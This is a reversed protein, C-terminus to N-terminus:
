RRPAAIAESEILERAIERVTDVIVQTRREIELNVRDGERKDGFTTVRLTEPILHVSFTGADRDVDVVTLSCGDLAVFGKPFVYRLLERPARFTVVHNGPPRDVTAIEATGDVHGSVEHGGIEDGARASREVNVRDGRRLRGLTTRDSTERIADFSVGDDRIATTTLCVGAIAVSAGSELGQRLSTPLALTLTRLGPRDVVEVVECSGKVIGTFM